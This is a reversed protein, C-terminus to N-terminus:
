RSNKPRAKYKPKAKASEGPETAPKAGSAPQGSFREKTKFSVKDKPTLNAILNGIPKVM